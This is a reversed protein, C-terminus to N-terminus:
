SLNFSWGLSLSVAGAERARTELRDLFRPTFWAALRERNVGPEVTLGRGFYAIAWAKGCWFTNWFRARAEDESAAVTVLVQTLTGEGTAFYDLELTYVVRTGLPEAPRDDQIM